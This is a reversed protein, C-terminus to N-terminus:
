GGRRASPAVTMPLEPLKQVNTWQRADAVDTRDHMKQM